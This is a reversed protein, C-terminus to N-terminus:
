EPTPCGPRIRRYRSDSTAWTYHMPSSRPSRRGPPSLTGASRFAPARCGRQDCRLLLHGGRRQNEQPGLNWMSTEQEWSRQSVRSQRGRGRRNRALGALRAGCRRGAGFRMKTSPSSTRPTCRFRPRTWTWCSASRPIWAGFHTSAIRAAIMAPPQSKSHHKEPRQFSRSSSEQPRGDDEPSATQVAFPAYQCYRQARSYLTRTSSPLKYKNRSGMVAAGWSLGRPELKRACIQIWM